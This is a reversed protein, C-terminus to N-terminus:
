KFKCTNKNPSADYKRMVIDVLLYFPIALAVVMFFDSVQM